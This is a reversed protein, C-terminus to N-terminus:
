KQATFKLAASNICYRLGTPQPGDDFVHGLHAGCNGCRIETRSMGFSTDKEEEIVVDSVPKSFSPWGSGSDFKAESDFLDDGCVVCKYKGKEHFDWYMGSFARETGNEQTIHYAEPSLRERLEKKKKEIGESMKKGRKVRLVDSEQPFNL